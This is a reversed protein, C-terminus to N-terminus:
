GLSPPILTVDKGEANRLPQLEFIQSRSEKHSTESANQHRRLLQKPPCSPRCSVKLVPATKLPKHRPRGNPRTDLACFM